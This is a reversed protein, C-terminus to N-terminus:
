LLEKQHQLRHCCTNSQEWFGASWAALPSWWSLTFDCLFRTFAIVFIEIQLWTCPYGLYCWLLRKVRLLSLMCHQFGSSFSLHGTAFGRTGFWSAGFAFIETLVSSPHSCGTYSHGAVSGPVPLDGHQVMSGLVQRLHLLLLTLHSKPLQSQHHLVNGSFASQAEM